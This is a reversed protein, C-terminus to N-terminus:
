IELDKYSLDELVDQVAVPTVKNKKLINLIMDVNEECDSIRNFVKKETYTKEKKMEKKYIEIGYIKNNSDTQVNRHEKIKFYKLEMKYEADLENYDSKDIYTDGYFEKTNIM